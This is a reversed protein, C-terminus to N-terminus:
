NLDSRIRNLLYHAKGDRISHISPCTVRLLGTGYLGLNRLQFLFVLVQKIAEKGLRGPVVLVFGDDFLYVMRPRLSALSSPIATADASRSCIMQVVIWVSLWTQAEDSLEVPWISQRIGM